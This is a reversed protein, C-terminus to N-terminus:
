CCSPMEEARIGWCHHQPDLLEAAPPKAPYARKPQPVHFALPSPVDYLFFVFLMLHLHPCKPPPTPPPAQPAQPAWTPRPAEQHEYTRLANQCLAALEYLYAVDSVLMAREKSMSRTANCHRPVGETRVGSLISAFAQAKAKLEGQMSRWSSLFAVTLAPQMVLDAPVCPVSFDVEMRQLVGDREM